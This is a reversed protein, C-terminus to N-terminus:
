SALYSKHSKVKHKAHKYKLTCNIRYENIFSKKLPKKFKKIITVDLKANTSTKNSFVFKLSLEESLISLRITLQCANNETRNENIKASPFLNRVFQELRVPLAHCKRNWNPETILTDQKPTTDNGAM